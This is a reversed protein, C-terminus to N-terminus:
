DDKAELAGEKMLKLYTIFRKEAYIEMLVGVAHKIEDELLELKNDMINEIHEIYDKNM